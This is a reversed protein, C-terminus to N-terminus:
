RRYWSFLRFIGDGDPIFDRDELVYSTVKGVSIDRSM